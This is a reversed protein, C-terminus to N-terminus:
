EEPEGLLRVLQWLEQASEWLGLLDRSPFAAANGLWRSTPRRVRSAYTAGSVM